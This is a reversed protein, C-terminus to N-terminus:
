RGEAKAIIARVSNIWEGVPLGEGDVPQSLLASITYLRNAEKLAALLEPAAAILRANAAVTGHPPIGDELPDGLEAEYDHWVEAIFIYDELSVISGAIGERRDGNFERVFAWPGLTHAM